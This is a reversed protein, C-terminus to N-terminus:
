RIPTAVTSKCSYIDGHVPHISARITGLSKRAIDLLGLGAGGKQGFEGNTLQARFAAAIEAPSMKNVSAVSELLRHADQCSANNEVTIMLHANEVQWNFRVQGDSCYRQANDLMEIAISCLKKITPRRGMNAIAMVMVLDTLQIRVESTLQGEYRTSSNEM